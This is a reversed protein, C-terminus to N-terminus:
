AWHPQDAEFDFTMQLRRDASRRRWERLAEAEELMASADASPRLFSVFRLYAVEDLDRLEALVLGGIHRSSVEAGRGSPLHREVCRAVDEATQPPLPRKACALAIGRFLKRHSFAERRGDRKLVLPGTAEEREDTSFEHGCLACARLRHVWGDAEWRRAVAAPGEGCYPCLM